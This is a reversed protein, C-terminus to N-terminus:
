IHNSFWEGIRGFLNHHAAAAISPEIEHQTAAYHLLGAPSAFATGRTADAMGVFGIPKGVRISRHDFLTALFESLRPIQAGGGTLVVRQGAAISPRAKDIRAILMEFTEEIRPRIIEGLLGVEIQQSANHEDEGIKPLVLTQDTDGIATLVDGHLNKIREAEELPTSLGRAIDSTVNAGGVPVSDVYALRGEMFIAVSTIGAGMEIVIAGLDKEDDVLTALAAAYASSCFCDVKLHNREVVAALNYLTSSSVTIASIEVGLENGRMGVPDRIGKIGDVIYQLPVRHIVTRGEETTSDNDFRLLRAVDRPSVTESIDTQRTSIISRQKGGSVSVCVREIALGAVQEAQEVAKGVAISLNELDVVEGGRMGASACIGVGQIVPASLGDSKAIFCAIKSTGIDLAAIVGSRQRPAKGISKTLSSETLPQNM